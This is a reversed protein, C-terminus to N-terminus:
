ALVGSLVMVALVIALLLSTIMAGILVRRNAETTRKMWRFALIHTVVGYVLSVPGIVAPGTWDEPSRIVWAISFALMVPGWCLWLFHLKIFRYNTM